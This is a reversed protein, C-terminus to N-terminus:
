GFEGQPTQQDQTDQGPQGIAGIAPADNGAGPQANERSDPATQAPQGVQNAGSAQGTLSTGQGSADEGIDRPSTRVEGAFLTSNESSQAGAPSQTTAGVQPNLDQDQQGTAANPQGSAAGILATVAALETADSRFL